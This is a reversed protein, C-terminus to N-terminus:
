IKRLHKGEKGTQKSEDDFDDHNIESSISINKNRIRLFQESNSLTNSKSKSNVGTDVRSSKLETEAKLHQQIKVYEDFKDYEVGEETDYSINNDNDSVSNPKSFNDDDCFYDGDDTINNHTGSDTSTTQLFDDRFHSNSIGNDDTEYLTTQNIETANSTSQKNESINQSKMDNVLQLTTITHITPIQTLINTDDSEKFKMTPVDYSIDYLWYSPSTARLSSSMEWWTNPHSSPFPIAKESLPTKSPIETPIQTSMQIPMLSPTIIKPSPTNTIPAYTPNIRDTPINIIGPLVENIPINTPATTPGNSPNTPVTNSPNSSPQYSPITSAQPPKIYGGIATTIVLSFQLRSSYYAILDTIFAYETILQHIHTLEYSHM